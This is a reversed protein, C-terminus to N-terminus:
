TGLFRDVLNLIQKKTFPKSVFDNCGSELARERAKVMTDASVAIVPLEALAENERIRSTAEYGDMVPMMLDMLVMDFTDSDILDLAVAGNEAVASEHGASKLIVQLLRQNVTNDEVILFRAM